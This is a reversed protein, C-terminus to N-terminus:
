GQWPKPANMLRAFGEGSQPQDLIVLYHQYSESDVKVLTQDFMTDEAARDMLIRVDERSRLNVPKAHASTKTM